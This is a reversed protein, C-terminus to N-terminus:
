LIYSKGIENKSELFPLVFTKGVSDEGEWEDTCISYLNTLWLAFDGLSHIDYKPFTCEVTSLFYYLLTRKKLGM